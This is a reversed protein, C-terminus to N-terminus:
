AEWDSITSSIEKELRKYEKSDIVILKIKPYYIAMRKIKTKSRDDMWGKVEHYEVSSDNKIIRFDPLYSVCGRKIGDFWFVEPEHEWDVIKNNNKLAELYRAYNAEWRSRYYNKTGGIERYGAKWSANARKITMFTGNQIQTKIGKQIRASKLEASENASRKLGSASMRQRAEDSHTKGQMGRPHGQTEWRQKALQSLVQKRHEIPIHLNKAHIAALMVAAQEPRKKGIKSQAARIQGDLWAESTGRASLKLTSARSRVQPESLNMAEMCWKKGKRPYFETLFDDQEQTWKM